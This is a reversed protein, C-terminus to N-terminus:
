YTGDAFWFPKNSWIGAICLKFPPSYDGQEIKKLLSSAEVVNIDNLFGTMGFLAHWILLSRDDIEELTM